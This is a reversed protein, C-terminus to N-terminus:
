AAIVARTLDDLAVEDRRVDLLVRGHSVVVFRQCVQYAHYLNHTVLVSSVGQSRLREVYALVAETERVGLASTPEDLLLLNRKFHVARAIAVAQRQGGSLEGVLQDPDIHTGIHVSSQMIDISARRMKRQNMFGLCSAEERGLFLNRWIPMSECLAGDQFIPEIGLAESDRRSGLTVQRGEWELYGSTPQVVGSMIKILTSKGAGNDGLLGVTEGKDIRFSV